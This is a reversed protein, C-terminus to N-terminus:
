IIRWEFDSHILQRLQGPRRKRPNGPPYLLLWSRYTIVRGDRSLSPPRTAQFAQVCRDTVDEGDLFVRLSCEPYVRRLAKELRRHREITMDGFGFRVGWFVQFCRAYCDWYKRITKGM